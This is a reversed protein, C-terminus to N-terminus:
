SRGASRRRRRRSRCAPWRRSPPHRAGPSARARESSGRRAGNSGSGRVLPADWWRGVGLCLLLLRSDARAPTGGLILRLRLPTRSATGSAGSSFSRTQSSSRPEPSYLPPLRAHVDGRGPSRPDRRQGDRVAHGHSSGPATSLPLGAAARMTASGPRHSLGARDHGSAAQWTERRRDDDGADGESREARETSRRRDRVPRRGARRRFLDRVPEVRPAGAVGRELPRRRPPSRGCGQAGPRPHAVRRRLRARRRRRRGRRAPRRKRRVSGPRRAPAAGVDGRREEAKADVRDGSARGRAPGSRSVVPPGCRRARPSGPAM